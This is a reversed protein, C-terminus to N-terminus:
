PIQQGLHPVPQSSAVAQLFMRYTSLHVPSRQLGQSVQSHEVNCLSM